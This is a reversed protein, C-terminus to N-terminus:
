DFHVQPNMQAPSRWDINYDRKLITALTHWWAFCFGMGRPVDTLEADAKAEAEAIVNEFEATWEVPDRRLHGTEIIENFRGSDAAMINFQLRAIEASLEDIGLETDEDDSADSQLMLLDLKLRPHNFLVEAARGCVNYAMSMHSGEEIISPMYRVIEYCLAENKWSPGFDRVYEECLLADACVLECIADSNGKDKSLIDLQQRRIEELEPIGYEKGDITQSM